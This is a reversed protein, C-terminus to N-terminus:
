LRKLGRSHTARNGMVFGFLIALHIAKAPNGSLSMGILDSFDSASMDYSDPILCPKNEAPEVAKIANQFMKTM